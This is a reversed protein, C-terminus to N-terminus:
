LPRKDLSFTNIRQRDFLILPICVKIYEFILVMLAVKHPTLIEMQGVVSGPKKLAELEDYHDM